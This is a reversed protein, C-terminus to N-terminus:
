SRMLGRVEGLLYGLGRSRGPLKVRRLAGQRGLRDLTGPHIALLASAEARRLVRDGEDAFAADRLILGAAIRDIRAHQKKM